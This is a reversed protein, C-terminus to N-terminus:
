YRPRPPPSTKLAHRNVNDLQSTQRIHTAMGISQRMQGLMFGKCLDWDSLTKMKAQAPTTQRALQRVKSSGRVKLTTKQGPRNNHSTLIIISFAM